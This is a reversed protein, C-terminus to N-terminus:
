SPLNPFRVKMASFSFHTTKRPPGPTASTLNIPLSSCRCNLEIKIPCGPPFVFELPSFGVLYGVYRALALEVEKSRLLRVKHGM